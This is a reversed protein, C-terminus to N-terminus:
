ERRTAGEPVQPAKEAGLFGTEGGQGIPVKRAGSFRESQSIGLAAHPGFELLGLGEPDADKDRPILIEWFYEGREIIGGEDKPAFAVIKRHILLADRHDSATAWGDIPAVRRPFEGSLDSGVPM